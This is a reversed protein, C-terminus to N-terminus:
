KGPLCLSVSTSFLSTSVIPPLHAHSSNFPQCQFICLVMHLYIALLFSSCLVPLYVRHQKLVYLPPIPHAPLRQVFPIYIYM